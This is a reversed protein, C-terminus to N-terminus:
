EHTQYKSSYGREIWEIEVGQVLWKLKQLELVQKQVESSNEPIVLRLTNNQIMEKNISINESGWNTTGQFNLLRLAYEDIQKDINEIKQYSPATLDMSKISTAKGDVYSSLVPYNYPLNAGEMQQFYAGRDLSPLNWVNDHMKKEEDDANKKLLEFSDVSYDGWFPIPYSYYKYTNEVNYPLKYSFTYFLHNEKRHIKGKRQGIFIELYPFYQPSQKFWYEQRNLLLASNIQDITFKVGLKNLDILKEEKTYEYDIYAATSLQIEQIASWAAEQWLIDARVSLSLSYLLAIFILYIPFVISAEISLSGDQSSIRKTNINKRMISVM